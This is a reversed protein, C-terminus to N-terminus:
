TSLLRYDDLEDFSPFGYNFKSARRGSPASVGDASQVGAEGDSILGQPSPALSRLSAADRSFDRHHSPINEIAMGSLM